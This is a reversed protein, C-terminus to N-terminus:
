IMRRSRQRNLIPTSGEERLRMAARHPRQKPGKPEAQKSRSQFHGGSLDYPRPPAEARCGCRCGNEHVTTLRLIMFDASNNRRRRGPVPPSGSRLPPPPSAGPLLRRRHPPNRFPIPALPSASLTRGPRGPKIGKRTSGGAGQSRDSPVSYWSSGSGRRRLLIETPM